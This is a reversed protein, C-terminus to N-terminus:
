IDEGYLKKLIRDTQEDTKRKEELYDYFADIRAALMEQIEYVLVMELKDALVARRREKEQNSIGTRKFSTMEIRQLREYVPQLASIQDPTLTPLMEEWKAQLEIQLSVFANFPNDAQNLQNTVYEPEIGFQTFLTIIESQKM